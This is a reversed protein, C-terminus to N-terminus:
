IKLTEESLPLVAGSLYCAADNKQCFRYLSAPRGPASHDRKGTNEVLNQHLVLRRFNSKHILRGTICEQAHQLQNLTFVEPLFDFIIPSYRIKARLRSFATALIRRYDHHMELGSYPVTREKSSEAVLGAEWLIEYRSLVFEDNWQANNLGFYHTIRAQKEPDNKAWIMLEKQLYQLSKNEQRRDEWPFYDYFSCVDYHDQPLSQSIALYSISILRRVTGADSQDAFTYLQEVSRLSNHTLTNAWQRFGRQLSRRKADLAQNPLTVRDKTLVFPGDSGLTVLVAILDVECLLDPM